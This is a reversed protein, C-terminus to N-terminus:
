YLPLPLSQNSSLITVHSSIRSERKKEDLNNMSSGSQPRGESNNSQSQYPQDESIKLTKLKRETVTPGHDDMSKDTTFDNKKKDEPKETNYSASPKRLLGPLERRSNNVDDTAKPTHNQTFKHHESTTLIKGSQSNLSYSTLPHSSQSPQSSINITKKVDTAQTTMRSSGHDRSSSERENIEERLKSM